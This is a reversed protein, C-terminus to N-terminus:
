NKLQEPSLESPKMKEAVRDVDKQDMFGLKISTNVFLDSMNTIVFDDIDKALTEEHGAESIKIGTRRGTADHNFCGEQLIKNLFPRIRKLDFDKNKLNDKIIQLCEFKDELTCYIVPVIGNIAPLEVDGTIAQKYRSM